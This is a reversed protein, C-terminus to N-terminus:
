AHMILERVHRRGRDNWSRIWALFRFRSGHLRALYTDRFGVKIRIWGTFLRCVSVGMPAPTAHM